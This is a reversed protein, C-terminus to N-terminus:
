EHCEMVPEANEYSHGIQLLSDLGESVAHICSQGVQTALALVIEFAMGGLFFKWFTSVDMIGMPLCLLCAIISLGGALGGIITAIYGCNGIFASLLGLGLQIIFAVAYIPLLLIRKVIRLVLM